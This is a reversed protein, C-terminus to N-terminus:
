LLAAAAGAIHGSVARAGRAIGAIPTSRAADDRWYAVKMSPNWGPNFTRRTTAPRLKAISYRQASPWYSRSGASAASKTSRRTVAIKVAPLVRTVTPPLAAVF